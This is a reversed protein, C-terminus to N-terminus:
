LGDAKPDVNLPMRSTISFLLIDREITTYLESTHHLCNRAAELTKAPWFSSMMGLCWGGCLNPRASEAIYFVVTNLFCM